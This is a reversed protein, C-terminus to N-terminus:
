VHIRWFAHFGEPIITVPSGLQGGHQQYLELGSEGLLEALDERAKQVHTAIAAQREEESLDARQRLEWLQHEAVDKIDYVRDVRERPLDLRKTVNILQAYGPDQSRQYQQFRDPGLIEQLDREMKEQAEAYRRQAEEEFGEDPLDAVSATNVEYQLRFMQRFEEETPSMGSLRYRLGMSTSSTRLEFEFLEEPSLTAALDRRREEELMVQARNDESLLIGGADQQIKSQMMQYDQQIVYAARTKEPPIPSVPIGFWKSAEPGFIGEMAEWMRVQMEVVERQNEWDVQAGRWPEWYEVHQNGGGRLMLEMHNRMVFGLSFVKADEEKWGAALLAAVQEKSGMEDFAASPPHSVVTEPSELPEADLDQTAMEAPPTFAVGGAAPEPAIPWLFFFGSVIFAINLGVSAILTKKMVSEKLWRSAYTARRHSVCMLSGLRFDSRSLTVERAKNGPQDDTLGSQEDDGHGIETSETGEQKM